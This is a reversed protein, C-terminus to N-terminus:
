DNANNFCGASALDLYAAVLWETGRTPGAPLPICAMTGSRMSSITEPVREVAQGAVHQAERAAPIALRNGAPAQDLDSQRGNPESWLEEGVVDPPLDDAPYAGRLLLAGLTDALRALHVSGERRRVEEVLNVHATWGEDPTIRMTDDPGLEGPGCTVRMAKFVDRAEVPGELVVPTVPDNRDFRM